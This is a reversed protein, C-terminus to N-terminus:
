YTAWANQNKNLSTCGRYAGPIDIYNLARTAGQESTCYGEVTLSKLIELFSKGLLRSKLKKAYKNLHFESNEMNLLILERESIALEEFNIEYKIKVSKKLNKLGEIFKNQITIASCEKIMLIVFEDVKAELAGPTDTKPIITDVLAALLLQNQELFTIDPKDYKYHYRQYYGTGIFILGTAASLISINILAKRRNMYSM